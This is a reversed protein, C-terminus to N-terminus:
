GAAQLKLCFFRVSPQATDDNEMYMVQFTYGDSTLQPRKTQPDEQKIGYIGMAVAQTRLIDIITDAQVNYGALQMNFGQKIPNRICDFTWSQYTATCPWEAVEDHWLELMDETWSGTPVAPQEELLLGGGNQLLLYGSGSALELFNPM